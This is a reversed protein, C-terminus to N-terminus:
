DNSGGSGRISSEVTSKNESELPWLLRGNPLKTPVVGFYHGKKCHNHLLTQPKVLHLKAYEETSVNRM